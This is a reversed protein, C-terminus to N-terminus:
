AQWAALQQLQAPSVAAGSLVCTHGARRWTVVLRGDLRLTRLEVGHMRTVQAAPQSLPPAGLITYAIRKGQWQYYVTVAPRGDIQDTRQGVAQWGFRSTWNPFYVRELNQGLQRQPRDPDPAPAPAAPGRAALAAAQSLSPAGPAGGPLLLVLALVIVALAASLAGAYGLQRRTRVARGPREAEIRARLGAPARETARSEHLLGVVRREREYRARLEPSSEIRARVEDRRTPDLSGDALKSLDALEDPTSPM